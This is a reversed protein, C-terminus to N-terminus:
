KGDQKLNEYLKKFEPFIQPDRQAQNTLVEMFTKHWAVIASGYFGSLARSQVLKHNILYALYEVTNFFEYRWSADPEANKEKFEKQYRLDLGRIEKFISEFVQIQTAKAVLRVSKGAYILTVFSVLLASLAIVDSFTM